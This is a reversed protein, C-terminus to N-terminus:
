DVSYASFDPLQSDFVVRPAQPAFIHHQAAVKLVPMCAMALDFWLMYDGGKTFWRVLDPSKCIIPVMKVAITDANEALSGGCTPDKASLGMAAFGFLMGLKGEIDDKVRKTVRVYQVPKRADNEPPEPDDPTRVAADDLSIGSPESEAYEEQSNLSSLDEGSITITPPNSKHGRRYARTTGPTLEQGCGCACLEM